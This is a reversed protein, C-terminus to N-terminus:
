NKILEVESYLFVRPNFTDSCVIVEQREQYYKGIFKCILRNRSELRESNFLNLPNILVEDQPEVWTYADDLEIALDEPIEVPLSDPKISLIRDKLERPVWQPCPCPSICPWGFFELEIEVEEGLKGEWVYQISDPYNEANSLEKQIIRRSNLRCSVLQILCFTLVTIIILGSAIKRLKKNM